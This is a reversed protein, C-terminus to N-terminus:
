ADKRMAIMLFDQINTPPNNSSFIDRARKKAETKKIGISNLADVCDMFLQQSEFNPKTKEVQKIIKNTINVTSGTSDQIYGITFLDLNIPKTEKSNIAKVFYYVFVCGFILAFISGIYPPPQPNM